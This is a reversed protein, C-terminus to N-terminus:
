AGGGARRLAQGERLDGQPPAPGEGHRRNEQTSPANYRLSSSTRRELWAATAGEPSQSSNPTGGVRPEASRAGRAVRRPGKPATAREDGVKCTKETLAGRKERGAPPRSPSSPQPSSPKQRHRSRASGPRPSAAPM